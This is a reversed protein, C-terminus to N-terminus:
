KIETLLKQMDTVKNQTCKTILKQFRREERKTLGPFVEGFALLYQITKGLGYIDLEQSAYYYSNENEPLFYERVARGQMKRVRERNSEAGIDLFCVKEAETVIISYPNVYQYSPNGCCKHIQILQRIIERVWCFLQEKSIYPHYKIWRALSCGRISDSSVHCIQNHEILRLVDYDKLENM